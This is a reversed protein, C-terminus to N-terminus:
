ESGGGPSILVAGDDTPLQSTHLLASGDSTLLLSSSSLTAVKVSPKVNAKAVKPTGLVAGDSLRLFVPASLPVMGLKRAREDLTAPATMVAAQQSLDQVSANLQRLQENLRQEEFAGQSLQTQLFLYAALATIATGVLIAWYVYTGRKSKVGDIVQFDPRLSRLAFASPQIVNALLSM